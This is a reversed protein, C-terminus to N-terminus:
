KVGLRALADRIGEENFGVCRFLVKGESDIVYNTPYAEVGYLAPVQYNKSDGAAKDGMGIKFTFKNENVYRNITEAPDRFNIAVMELGKDKLESYLKQL